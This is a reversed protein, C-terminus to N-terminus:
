ATSCSGSTRPRMSTILSWPLPRATNPRQTALTGPARLLVGLNSHANAHRPAVAIARRYAEVAADLRGALQHVIGLNSFADADDPALGLSKEILAVAEDGRGQQHALVGAYHLARPHDPVRDLVRTSCIRPRSWGVTRRCSSRWSSRGM